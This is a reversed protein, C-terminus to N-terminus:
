VKDIANKTFVNMIATYVQVKMARTSIPILAM